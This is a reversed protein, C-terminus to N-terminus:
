SDSEARAPVGLEMAECAGIRIAPPPMPPSASAMASALSPRAETTRSRCASNLAAPAPMWIPGLPTRTNCLSPTASAKRGSTPTGSAMM